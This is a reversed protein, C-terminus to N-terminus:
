WDGGSAVILQVVHGSDPTVWGGTRELRRVVPSAQGEIDVVLVRVDGRRPLAAVTLDPWGCIVVTAGDPLCHALERDTRDARLEDIM